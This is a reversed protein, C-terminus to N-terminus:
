NQSCVIEVLLQKREQGERNRRKNSSTGLQNNECRSAVPRNICM